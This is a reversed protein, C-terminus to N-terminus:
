AENALSHNCCMPRVLLESSHRLGRSTWLLWPQRAPFPPISPGAPHRHSPHGHVSTPPDSFGLPQYTPLGGGAHLSTSLSGHGPSFLFYEGQLTPSGLKPLKGKLHRPPNAPSSDTWPLAASVLHSTTKWLLSPSTLVVLHRRRANGLSSCSGACVHALSWLRKRQLPRCRGRNVFSLITDAAFPFPQKDWLQSQLTSKLSLPLLYIVTM